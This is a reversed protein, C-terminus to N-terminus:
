NGAKYNKKNYVGFIAFRSAAASADDMCSDQFAALVAASSM